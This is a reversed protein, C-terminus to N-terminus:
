GKKEKIILGQEALKLCSGDFFMGVKMGQGRGDRVKLLHMVRNIHMEQRGCCSRVTVESPEVCQLWLACDIFRGVAAGGAICELSPAAYAKTPHSVIVISIKFKVAYAKVQNMFMRDAEWPPGGPDAATIPDVVIVRNGSYAKDEIWNLVDMYSVSGLPACHISHGVINLWDHHRAMAKSVEGPNQVCWELDTIDSNDDLQSLMRHMHGAHTGELTMVCCQVDLKAWFDICQLVTFSKSAGIGGVFAVVAGPTLSPVVNTIQPWPWPIAKFEGACVSDMHKLLHNMPYIHPSLVLYEVKKAIVEESDGDKKCDEVFRHLALNDIRHAM